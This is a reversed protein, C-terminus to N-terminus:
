DGALVKDHIRYLVGSQKDTLKWRTAISDLFSREWNSLLHLFQQVTNFQDIQEDTWFDMPEPTDSSYGADKRSNSAAAGHTVPLGQARRRKQAPSLRDWGM